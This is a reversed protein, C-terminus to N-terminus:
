LRRAAILTIDDFQELGAAFDRVGAALRATLAQVDEGAPAGSIAAALRAEGFQAGAADAAETVGDTYGLITEGPLLRRSFAPYDWQGRVGCAPGSRGALVSVSGDPLRLFPPPHGANCWALEGDSLSLIGVLLTVFMLNPNNEALRNNVRTVIEAPDGASEAAARVLTRTIAAFLAAPVGKGSADGIVLCASRGGPLAFYDYFDGGVEKAPLIFAALDMRDRVAEPLPQPLLGLQIDSAIRLENEIRGREATERVLRAVNDRLKDNMLLFAGALQGIEDKQRRALGAVAPPIAAAATLDEDPLRRVFRTLLSLPAAIRGVALAAILWVALLVALFVLMQRKILQAAPAAFDREPVMAVLTWGLPKFYQHDVQWAEGEAMLNLTQSNESRREALSAFFAEDLLGRHREPPPVVFRGDDGRVALFGSTSLILSGLNEKLQAEMESRLLAVRDLIDQGDGAAVIVWDWPKFYLFSAIWTREGQGSAEPQRYVAFSDQFRHTEEYLSAALPQGKIDILGSIDAGLLEPASSARVRFRGDYAFMQWATFVPSEGMWAGAMAQAEREGQGASAALDAHSQLVSAVHGAMVMLESREQRVARTKSFFLTDWVADVDRAALRMVNEVAHREAGSITTRMDQWSITVILTAILLLVSTLLLFIKSRFSQFVM